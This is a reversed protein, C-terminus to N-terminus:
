NQSFVAWAVRCDEKRSARTFPATYTRQVERPGGPLTVTNRIGNEFCEHRPAQGRFDDTKPSKESSLAQVKNM